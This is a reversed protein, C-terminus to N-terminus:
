DRFEGSYLWVLKELSPEIKKPSLMCRGDPLCRVRFHRVVKTIAAAAGTSSVSGLHTDRSQQQGIDLLSIAYWVTLLLLLLL